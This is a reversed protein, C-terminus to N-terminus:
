AVTFTVTYTTGGYTKKMMIDGDNGSGTGDSLWIVAHGEVPDAPDASKELLMISGVEATTRKVVYRQDHDRNSGGVDPMDYIDSHRIPENM